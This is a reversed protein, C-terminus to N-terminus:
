FLNGSINLISNTVTSSTGDNYVCQYIGEDELKLRDFILQGTASIEVGNDKVTIKGDSSGGSWGLVQPVGNDLLKKWICLYVNKESCSLRGTGDFVFDVSKDIKINHDSTESLELLLRAEKKSETPKWNYTCVLLQLSVDEDKRIEASISINFTGDDNETTENRTSIPSDEGNLRKVLSLDVPPKIANISCKILESISNHQYCDAEECSGIVPHNQHPTVTLLSLGFM